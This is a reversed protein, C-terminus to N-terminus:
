LKLFKESFRSFIGKEERRNLMNSSIELGATGLFWRIGAFLTVRFIPWCQPSAPDFREHLKGM